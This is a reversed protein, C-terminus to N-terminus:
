REVEEQIRERFFRHNYLGTLGDTVALQALRENARQISEFLHGRELANSAAEAVIVCFSVERLTFGHTSRAARLFLSGNNEDFLGIPIVLLSAIKASKLEKAFKRTLPDHAVDNIIVKGRTTMSNRIEPYKDMELVLDYVSEDEHSALVHGVKDDGWVRVVSCRDVKVVEAIQEVFVYLIDHARRQASIAKLINLVSILDDKDMAMDRQRLADHRTHVGMLHMVASLPLTASSARDASVGDPADLGVAAFLTRAANEVYGRDASWYGWATDRIAGQAIGGGMLAFGVSKSLVVLFQAYPYDRPTPLHAVKESAPWAYPPPGVLYVSKAMTQVAGLADTQAATQTDAILIVEDRASATAIRAVESTLTMYTAADAIPALVNFHTDAFEAGNAASSFATHLDQPPM